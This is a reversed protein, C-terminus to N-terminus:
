ASETVSVSPGDTATTKPGSGADIDLEANADVLFGLRTLRAVEDGPLSVKAGADKRDTVRGTVPDPEGVFVSRGRAVTATVLKVAAM